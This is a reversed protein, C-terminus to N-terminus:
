FFYLFSLIIASIGFTAAGSRDAKLVCEDGNCKTPKGCTTKVNSIMDKTEELSNFESTLSTEWLKCVADGVESDEATSDAMCSQSEFEMNGSQTTSTTQGNTDTTEIKVQATASVTYKYCAQQKPCTKVTAKDYAKESDPIESYLDILGDGTGYSYKTMKFGSDYCQNVAAATALVVM